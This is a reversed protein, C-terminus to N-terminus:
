YRGQKRLRKKKRNRASTSTDNPDDIIIDDQRQRATIVAHDHMCLSELNSPLNARWKEDPPFKGFPVIHNVETAPQGCKVCKGHDRALVSARIAQTMDGPRGARPKKRHQACRYKGPEAFSMCPTYPDETFYTCFRAM